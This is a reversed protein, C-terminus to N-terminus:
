AAPQLGALPPEIGDAIELWPLTAYSTWHLRKMRPLDPARIGGSGGSSRYYLPLVRGQYPRSTPDNGDLLVLFIRPHLEFASRLMALTSTSIEFNKVRELFRNPSFEM